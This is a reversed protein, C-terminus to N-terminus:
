NHRLGLICGDYAARQLPIPSIKMDKVYRLAIGNNDLPSGSRFEVGKGFARALVDRPVNECTKRAQARTERYAFRQLDRNGVEVPQKSTVTTTQTDEGCAALGISVLAILAISLKASM